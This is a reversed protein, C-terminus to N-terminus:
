SFTAIAAFQPMGYAVNRSSEVSYLYENENFAHDSGEGLTKLKPKVEEQRILPKLNADTRFIQFQTTYTMRSNIELDITFGKKKLENLVNTQGSDIQPSVIAPALYTFMTPSTMILFERAGSNIPDGTDDKYTMLYAIVGLIAKIAEAATPAAATGVNLAAVQSATLLNIYTGSEGDVHDSDFFYQGDYALGSTSGTGNILLTTLLSEWHQVTKRALDAIRIKIQGTKDRRHDKIAIAMTAEFDENIITLGSEKLKKALKAGTWKRMGPAQGLWAYIEQAQDSKFYNSLKSIWSSEFANQLALYYMGMVARTTINEMKTEGSKEKQPAIFFRCGLSQAGL